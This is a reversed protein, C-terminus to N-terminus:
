RPVTAPRLAPLPPPAPQTMGPLARRLIEAIEEDTMFSPPGEVASRMEVMQEIADWTPNNYTRPASTSPQAPAAPVRIDMPPFSLRPMGTDTPTVAPEPSPPPYMGPSAEPAAPPAAPAPAAPPPAPTPAAPTPPPAQKARAEEEKIQTQSMKARRNQAGRTAFFYDLAVDAREDNKFKKQALARAETGKINTTLALTRGYEAPDQTFGPRRQRQEGQETTVDALLADVGEERVIRMARPVTDLWWRPKDPYDRPDLFILGRARAESELFLRAQEREIEAPTREERELFQQRTKGEETKLQAVSGLRKLFENNFYPAQARTYLGLNAAKEYAAKGAEFGEGYEEPTPVGDDALTDIYRQVALREAESLVTNPDVAQTAAGGGGGGGRGAGGAGARMSLALQAAAEALQNQYQQAAPLPEIAGQSATLSARLSSIAEPTLAGAPVGYVAAAVERAVGSNALQAAAAVAEMNISGDRPQKIPAIARDLSASQAIAFQREPTQNRMRNALDNNFRVTADSPEPLGESGYRAGFMPLETQTEQARGGIDRAIQLARMQDMLGVGGGGGGRRRGAAATAARAAAEQQIELATPGASLARMMQMLEARETDLQAQLMALRQEYPNRAAEASARDWRALTAQYPYYRYYITTGLTDQPGFQFRQPLMNASM